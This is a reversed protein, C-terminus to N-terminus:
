IGQSLCLIRSQVPISVQAFSGLNAFNNHSSFDRTICCFFNVPKERIDTVRFVTYQTKPAKSGSLKYIRSKELM